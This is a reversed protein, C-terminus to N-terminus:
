NVEMRKIKEMTKGIKALDMDALYSDLMFHFKDEIEDDKKAM